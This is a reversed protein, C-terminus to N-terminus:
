SFDPGIAASLSAPVCRPALAKVTRRASLNRACVKPAALTNSCSIAQMTNHQRTHPSPRPPAPLGLCLKPLRRPAFRVTSHSQVTTLIFFEIFFVDNPSQPRRTRVPTKERHSLLGSSSDPPPLSLASPHPPSLPLPLPSSSVSPEKTNVEIRHFIRKRM